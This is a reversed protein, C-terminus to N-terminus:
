RRRLKRRIQTLLSEDKRQQQLWDQKELEMDYFLMRRSSGSIKFFQKLHSYEPRELFSIDDDGDIHMYDSGTQKFGCREYCRVARVNVAAVDLVMREFGLETFFYHLFVQLAETGYGQGVFPAGFGIGLRASWHRRIDRLSLRGILRGQEDEVAYYVRAQDTLLYSFWADNQTSSSVSWDFLRYLPDDFRPWTEMEDLDQRQLPRVTVRLGKLRIDEAEM